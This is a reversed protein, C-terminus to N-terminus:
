IGGIFLQGITLEFNANDKLYKQTKQVQKYMRIVEKTSINQKQIYNLKDINIYFKDDINENFIIVDRLFISYINFFEELNEKNEEFFPMERFPDTKLNILRDILEFSKDRFAIASPDTAYRMARKISGVAIKSFLEANQADLGINQVLFESIEEDDVDKFKILRSRSSITPLINTISKAILIIKLYEEPEELTKLLANQGSISVNEFGDIIFVKYRGSYPNKKAEGILEEIQEKKISSGRLIHLDLTNEGLIRKAFAKALTFKGVGESGLFLYAHNIDGTNINKELELKADRNGVFDILM